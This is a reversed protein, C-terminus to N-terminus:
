LFPYNQGLKLYTVIGNLVTLCFAIVKGRDETGELGTILEFLRDTWCLEILNQSTELDMHCLQNNGLQNNWGFDTCDDM